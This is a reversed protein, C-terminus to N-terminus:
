SVYRVAYVCPLFLLLIRAFLYTVSKRKANEETDFITTAEM